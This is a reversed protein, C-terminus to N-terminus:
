RRRRLTALGAIALLSLSSPEPLQAILLNDIAGGPANSDFNIFNESYGGGGKVYNFVSLGNVFVEIETQGSGNFPNGDTTDTLLMEVRHLENDGYSDTTWLEGSSVVANADFAQIGGNDRFLIGFHELNQNIFLGRDANSMGINLATWDSSGVDDVQPVMDFAILLGGEALSGNFNQDPSVASVGDSRVYLYNGNDIGGAPSGIRHDGSETYTVNSAGVALLGGQRAEINTNINTSNPNGPAYFNDTLLATYDVLENSFAYHHFTRGSATPDITFTVSNSQATFTYNLTHPTGVPGYGDQDYIIFAGGDSVTIAQNRPGGWDSNYFTTRYREGVRLNNLTLTGPDANYSFGNFLERVSGTASSPNNNNVRAGNGALAYNNTSPNDNGQGAGTFVADNITLNGDDNVDIALAYANSAAIGSDADSTFLTTNFVGAASASQAAILGVAGALLTATSFSFKASDKLM